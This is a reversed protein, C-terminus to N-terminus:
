TGAGQHDTPMAGADHCPPAAGPDGAPSASPSDALLAQSTNEALEELLRELENRDAVNMRGITQNIFGVTLSRLEEELRHGQATLYVRTLRQDIEDNRRVVTGAKELAQLMTTVRPRSLHLTDALDRQSMGDHQALMRLCMAEGPHTGREALTKVMLQRHVHITKRLAQLVRASLPDVGDLLLPPLDHHQPTSKPM